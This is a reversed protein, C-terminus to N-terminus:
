EGQKLLAFLATCRRAVLHNPQLGLQGARLGPQQRELASEEVEPPSWELADDTTRHVGVARLGLVVLM